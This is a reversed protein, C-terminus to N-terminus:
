GPSETAESAHGNTAGPPRPTSFVIAGVWKSVLPMTSTSVFGGTSHSRPPRSRITESM